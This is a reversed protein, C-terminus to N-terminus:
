LKLICVKAELRHKCLEVKEKAVILKEAAKKQREQELEAMQIKQVKQEREFKRLRLEDIHDEKLLQEDLFLQDKRVEEAQLAQLDGPYADLSFWKSVCSLVM